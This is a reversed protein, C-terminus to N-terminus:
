RRAPRLHAKAETRLAKHKKETRDLRSRAADLEAALAAAEAPDIDDAPAAKEVPRVQSAKFRVFEASRPAKYASKRFLVFGDADRTLAKGFPPAKDDDDDEDDEDEDGAPEADATEDPAEDTVEDDVEAGADSDDENGDDDGQGSVHDVVMDGTAAMKALIAEMQDAMGTLKKRAQMHESKRLADRLMAVADACQQVCDYATRATHPTDDDPAAGPDQADVGPDAPMEYDMPDPMAKRRPNPNTPPTGDVRASTRAPAFGAFAKLVVPDLARGNLRGDRAIRECREYVESPIAHAPAFAKAEGDPVLTRANPNVPHPAHAWGLGTWREFHLAKRGELESWEGTGWFAVGEPGAPTFELSVGTVADAEVAARIQRAADLCRRPSFGKLDIGALDARSGFWRTTGVPALVESGQYPVRALEVSGRGVPVTHNFNVIPNRPYQSWDGGDPRVWDGVLDYGPYTLVSRTGTEGVAKQVVGGNWAVRPGPISYAHAPPAANASLVSKLYRLYPVM